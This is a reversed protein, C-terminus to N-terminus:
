KELSKKEFPNMKTHWIWLLSGTSHSANKVLCLRSIEKERKIIEKKVVIYDIISSNCGSRFTILKESDKKFFM